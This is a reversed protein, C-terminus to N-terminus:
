ISSSFIPTLISFLTHIVLFPLLSRIFFIGIVTSSISDRIFLCYFTFDLIYFTFYFIYFDSCNKTQPSKQM